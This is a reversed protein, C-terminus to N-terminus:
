VQSDKDVDTNKGLIKQVISGLNDVVGSLNKVTERLSEKKKKDVKVTANEKARKKSISKEAMKRAEVIESCSANKMTSQLFTSFGANHITGNEDYCCIVRKMIAYALGIEKSEISATKVTTTSGDSLKIEQEVVNVIDKDCNKVVSKTGDAFYVVTTLVPSDGKTNTSFMVKKIGPVFTNNRAISEVVKDGLEDDFDFGLLEDTEDDIMPTLVTNLM